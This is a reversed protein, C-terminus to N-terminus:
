APTSNDKFLTIIRRLHARADDLRNRFTKEDCGLKEAAEAPKLHEFYVLKIAEQRKPPLKEIANLLMDKADADASAQHTPGEPALIDEPIPKLSDQDRWQLFVNHAIGFLWAKVPGKRSDYSSRGNWARLFVEQTLDELYSGHTGRRLLYARVVDAHTRYLIAFEARARLSLRLVESRHSYGLTRDTEARFSKSM